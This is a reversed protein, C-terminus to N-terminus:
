KLGQKVLSVIQQFAKSLEKSKIVISIPSENFVTLILKDDCATFDVPQDFDSKDVFTVKRLSHGKEYDGKDSTYVYDSLIKRSLKRAKLNEINKRSFVASVCDKNSIGAIYQSNVKLIEDRIVVQLGEDGEYFRVQPKNNSSQTVSFFNELDPLISEITDEKKSLELKEQAVISRIKEPAEVTFYRKKGKMVSSMLGKKMLSEVALYTTARNVGSLQSITQITSTGLKISALYTKAEKDSFGLQALKTLISNEM